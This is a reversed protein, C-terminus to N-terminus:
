ALLATALPTLEPWLASPMIWAWVDAERAAWCPAAVLCIEEVTADVLVARDFPAPMALLATAAWCAAVSLPRLVLAALIRAITLLAGIRRSRGPPRTPCTLCWGLRM